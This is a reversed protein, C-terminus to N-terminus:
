IDERSKGELGGVSTPSRCSDWGCLAFMVGGKNNQAHSPGQQVQSLLVLQRLAEQPYRAQLSGGEVGGGSLHHAPDLVPCTLRSKSHLCASSQKSYRRSPLMLEVKPRTEPGVLTVHAWSSPSEIPIDVSQACCQQIHMVPHIFNKIPCFNALQTQWGEQRVHSITAKWLVCM